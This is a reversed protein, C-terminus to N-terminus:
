ASSPGPPQLPQEPARRTGCRVCFNWEPRLPKACRACPIERQDAGCAPCFHLDEVDPLPEACRVCGAIASGFTPLPEAPAETEEAEEPDLVAEAEAAYPEDYGVPHPEDLPDPDREAVPGPDPLTDADGDAAGAMATGDVARVAFRVGVEAYDRYVGLIPNPSALERTLDDSAEPSEVVLYDGEGSLLRLLAHEYEALELIGLESRVSRYPILRQYVDAITLHPRPSGPWERQAAAALRTYLRDVLGRPDTM